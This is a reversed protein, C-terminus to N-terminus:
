DKPYRYKKKKRSKNRSRSRGRSRSESKSMSKSKNKNKNRNRSKNRKKNNNNKVYKWKDKEDNNMNNDTEEDIEIKEYNNQEENITNTNNINNEQIMGVNEIPHMSVTKPNIDALESYWQARCFVCVGGKSKEWMSFCKKHITKGCSYKCYDLEKGNELPDLCIPCVDGKDFKQNVAKPEEPREGQYILNQPIDPINSFMDVLEEESFQRDTFNNINMIRILVFFIHKCRNRRTRYDPCTCNPKKAITVKYTNGSNGMILYRREYEDESPLSEILYINDTYCREIRQSSM